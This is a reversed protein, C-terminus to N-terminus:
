QLQRLRQEVLATLDPHLNGSARARRYADLAAAPQNAAQLSIGLGVWWVGSGPRTRLAAQFHEIAQEHQGKRQLLAALFASYEPSGRAHELGNQLTTIARGGEGRDALLRALTVNFGIQSPSLKVGEELVREAEELKRGQVLLGVLGQRARHNEPYLLLSERFGSEAEDPRGQNMLVVAQRYQFDALERPTPEHLQKRIEPQAAEPVPKALAVLEGKPAAPKAATSASAPKPEAAADGGKRGIVRASSLPEKAAPKQLNAADQRPAPEVPPNSLEFTLRFPQMEQFYAGDADGPRTTGRLASTASAMREAIGGSVSEAPSGPTGAITTTLAIWGTLAAVTFTAGGAVWGWHRSRPSEPLAKVHPPIAAREVATVPRRELNLLVQNIVSM